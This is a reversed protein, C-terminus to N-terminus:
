PTSKSHMPMNHRHLPPPNVFHLQAAADQELLVELGITPYRLRLSKNQLRHAQPAPGFRSEINKRDINISPILTLERVRLEQALQLDEASINMRAVLNPYLHPLTARSEIDHLQTKSADLLLIVKSHDAISPFFAELTMGAHPHEVPYIYLAVDSRSQLVQEAKRLTTEGLTIGLIHLHGQRDVWTEHQRDHATHQHSTWLFLAGTVLFIAFLIKIWFRDSAQHPYESM